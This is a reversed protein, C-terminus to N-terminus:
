FLASWNRSGQTSKEAEWHAVPFWDTWLYEGVQRGLPDDARECQAPLCIVYWEEGSQSTVLGSRGDYEKPLIMGSLDEPHWRTQIILQLGQPKLRSRLDSKYAERTKERITASDAAERGKVPDDIILLDARNGTIGSLIGGCMYTSGNTLSWDDAAANDGVLETDFLTKFQRSRAIQRCKRGFKAALSSAYTAQIVNRRAFRAMYFTPFVVSAYTSKASGPPMFIMLRRIEGLMMRDLADLLLIHHAAPTVTESYFEPCEEDNNLPAGPIEIYGCYKVLGSAAQGRHREELLALLEIREQKTASNM